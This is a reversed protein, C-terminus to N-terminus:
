GVSLQERFMLVLDTKAVYGLLRREADLAPLREGPHSAFTEMLQWVPATVQVSPFDRRLLSLPWPADDVQGRTRLLLALDHMSIAGMFHRDADLVYVHQWRHHVFVAELERLSTGEPVTATDTRLLDAAMTLAPAHAPPTAGTSYISNPRLVRSVSYGLVCALMLPVVVGYNETMEFIMLMSTLPAHTCAALFAGMGIATGASAPLAAPAFAHVASGFLAGTVAGVFLTPTFIGGVAGSGTTAAVALLKFGLVFLLATWAWDGHLISSVVSYGNGWVDPSAVSFAGVLLGGAGLKIWPPAHWRRFEAHARDLLWLYPPALLGAVIGLLALLLLSTGDHGLVFSPMRYVPEFGVVATATVNAAFSAVLLPGLTELAMSRLVIEAVFLAGAIPASYATAVGAAAGCAVMLRRRPVPVNRWRGILSGGLAALQVMPGERGIAGGSTVSAAASLARLCSFRVGLRGDGIAISEMYDGGAEAAPVRKALMLVAGALAGGIAPVVLRWGWPLRAAIHVLGDRSGYLGHELALLSERFGITALAGVVGILAAWLLMRQWDSPRLRSLALLRLQPLRLM